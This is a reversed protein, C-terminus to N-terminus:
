YNKVLALTLEESKKAALKLFTPFDMASDSNAGDSIARIVVFPTRNIFAVQAIAGGEMECASASFTDAIYRGTQSDAVFKDGTAVTGFVVNIGLEKGASALIGMAATDSEFYIKEIGSIFGPPDGLASTDMDHQCIKEGVVIDATKLGFDLAGAVGTNIILAPSYRIIMAEATLAAFVKGVGCRAVVVNKGLVTGTHFEIGGVLETKRDSLKALIGNVEAEMAGIIGITKSVDKM